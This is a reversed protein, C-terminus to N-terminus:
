FSAYIVYCMTPVLVGVIAGLVSIQNRNSYFYYDNGYDKHDDYPHLHVHPAPMPSTIILRDAKKDFEDLLTVLKATGRPWMSDVGGEANNGIGLLVKFMDRKFGTMNKINKVLQSDLKIIGGKYLTANNCILHEKDDLVVVQWPHYRAFKWALQQSHVKSSAFNPIATELIFTSQDQDNPDKQVQTRHVQDAMRITWPQLSSYPRSLRIKNASLITGSLKDMNTEITVNWPEAKVLLASCFVVILLKIM